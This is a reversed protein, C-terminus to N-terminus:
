TDAKGRKTLATKQADHDPGNASPAYPPLPSRTRPPKWLLAVALALAGLALTPDAERAALIELALFMALVGGIKKPSRPSANTAGSPRQKCHTNM